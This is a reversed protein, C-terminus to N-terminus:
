IKGPLWSCRALRTFFRQPHNRECLDDIYSPAHSHLAKYSAFFFRLFRFGIFLNCFDTFPFKRIKQSTELHFFFIPGKRARPVLTLKESLPVDPTSHAACYETPNSHAGSTGPENVSQKQQLQKEGGEVPVLDRLVELQFGEKLLM